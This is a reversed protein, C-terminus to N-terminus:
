VSLDSSLSDVIAKSDLYFLPLALTDRQQVGEASNIGHESFFPISSASYCIHVSLLLFPFYKHVERIVTDRRVLNFANKFHLKVRAKDHVLSRVYTSPQCLIPQQEM